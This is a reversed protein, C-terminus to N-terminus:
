LGFPFRRRASVSSRRSRYDFERELPSNTVAKEDVEKFGRM